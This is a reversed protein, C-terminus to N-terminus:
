PRIILEDLKPELENLKDLSITPEGEQGISIFRIDHTGPMIGRKFTGYQINVGVVVDSGIAGEAKVCMPFDRGRDEDTGTQEGCDNVEWTVVAKRGVVKRFWKDFREAPMGSEIRSVLTRKAKAIVAAEMRRSQAGAITAMALMLFGILISRLIRTRNNKMLITTSSRKKFKSKCSFRRDGILASSYLELITKQKPQPMGVDNQQM